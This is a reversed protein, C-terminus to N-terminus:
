RCPHVRKGSPHHCLDLNGAPGQSAPNRPCRWPGSGLSASHLQSFVGVGADPEFFVSTDQDQVGAREGFHLFRQVARLCHQDRVLVPSWM